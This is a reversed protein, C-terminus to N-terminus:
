IIYDYMSDIHTYMPYEIRLIFSHIQELDSSFIYLDTCSKIFSHEFLSPFSEHSLPYGDFEAKNM